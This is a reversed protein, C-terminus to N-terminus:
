AGDGHAEAVLMEGAGMSDDYAVRVGCLRDPQTKDMSKVFDVCGYGQERMIERATYFSMVILNVEMIRGATSASLKEPGSLGIRPKDLRVRTNFILNRAKELFTM